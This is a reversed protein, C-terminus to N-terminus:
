WVPNHPQPIHDSVDRASVDAPAALHSLIRRLHQLKWFAGRQLINKFLAVHRRIATSLGRELSHPIDPSSNAPKCWRRAIPLLLAPSLLYQWGSPKTRYIIFVTYLELLLFAFGWHDDPIGQRHGNLLCSDSIWHGRLHLFSQLTVPLSEKWRKFGYHM